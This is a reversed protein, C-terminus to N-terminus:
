SDGAKAAKRFVDFAPKRSGNLRELGFWGEKDSRKSDIDISRYVFVAKIYSAYKTRLLAFMESLYAAQKKESTCYRPDKPCTSWGVETIWLPKSEAGHEVFTQRIDAVRPFGWGGRRHDPASSGSYPHVAVADFYANLDPVAAYMDDVFTHRKDGPPTQEGALLFKAQPNAERGAISTAKVLRAYRGPNVGGASFYRLYPENWIEFYDPAYSAIEPHAQWFTGGPGYRGVVAATYKSFASPNDPIQNWSSGAWSPTDILVPLIRMNRAAAEILLNDYRSWHWSNNRPEIEAWSFEERLWRAGTPEIGNLIEQSSMDWGQANAVLGVRLQDGAAPPNAPSPPHRERTKILLRTSRAIRKRKHRIKRHGYNRSVAIWMRPLKIRLKGNATIARQVVAPNLGKRKGKRVLSARLIRSAEVGRPEFVLGRGNRITKVPKVRTSEASLAVGPTAAVVCILVTFAAVIGLPRIRLSAGHLM